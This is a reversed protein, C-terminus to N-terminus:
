AAFGIYRAFGEPPDAFFRDVPVPPGVRGEEIFIAHSAIRRADGPEHTVMMLTAGTEEALAAVLDLMEARLAPGLAAFPEDLLVVPRAMLLMRALAVRSQQGGSLAGPRRGGLGALGVRELAGEVRDNEDATLRLSPKLGLAVNEAATLHPFLNQDQFIVGVPRAGPPLPTLDRGDWLIRGTDPALFGAIVSLLTSKGAGSPGIVAARAGRPLSLEASLCFDGWRAAIADLELM